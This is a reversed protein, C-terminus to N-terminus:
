FNRRRPRRPIKPAISIALKEANAPDRAGEMALGNQDPEGGHGEGVGGVSVSVLPLAKGHNHFQQPAYVGDPVRAHPNDWRQQPSPTRQRSGGSKAYILHAPQLAALTFNTKAHKEHRAGRDGDVEEICL